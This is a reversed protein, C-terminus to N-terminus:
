FFRNVGLWLFFYDESPTEGGGEHHSECRFSSLNHELLSFSLCSFSEQAYFSGAQKPIQGKIELVSRQGPRVGRAGRGARRLSCAKIISDSPHVTVPKSTNQFCQKVALLLSVLSM